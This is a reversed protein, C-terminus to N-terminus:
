ATASAARITLVPCSANRVVREATSGLKATKTEGRTGMIILDYGEREAVELIRLHPDGSELRGHVKFPGAGEIEELVQKMKQGAATGVFEGLTQERGDPSQVRTAPDISAPSTWIHLADVCSVGLKKGLFIAYDLAVRSCDSFDVPVLIRDIAIM